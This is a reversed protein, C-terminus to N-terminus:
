ASRGEVRTWILLGPNLGWPFDVLVTREDLLHDFFSGTLAVGARGALAGGRLVQAQPAVLSYRGSTSDQTHLGLMSHVRLATGDGALLDALPVAPRDSLLLFGPSGGPVPTPPFGARAAHKLDVIPRVLRGREVLKVRGGPVGESSVPSAAGELDLLSDVTVALDARAVQRGSRFDELSYASRGALVGAGGLNSLLFAGLMSMAVGPSLLVPLEGAPAEVVQRLPLSTAIVEGILEEQEAPAPLRRKGFVRWYLEEASVSFSASTEGYSVRLGRSNYVQRDGRGAGCDAQLRGLGAAELRQRVTQLWNLLPDPAGDVLAEVAPDATQVTPLEAPPLIDPAGPDDFANLRWEALRDPLEDLVQGRFSGHSVRGDSWRLYLRGGTLHASAPPEYPGGLAGDKLGARLSWGSSLDFRWGVLQAREVRPQADLREALREALGLDPEAL